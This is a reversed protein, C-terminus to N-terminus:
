NTKGGWQGNGGSNDEEDSQEGSRSSPMVNVILYTM